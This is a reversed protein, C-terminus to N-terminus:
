WQLRLTFQFNRGPMQRQLVSRYTENFLNFVTIELDLSGLGTHLRKGAGAQNMFYPYLCDRDTTRSNSATTFRESYYNWAYNVSWERWEMGFGANASHVPIYPLQKGSSGDAWNEKRGFNLSRTMAYNGRIQWHFEGSQGSYASNIELGYTKVAEINSPEWNGNFSPLWIIWDKVDSRYFSIGAMLKRPDSDINFVAGMEGSLSNEPRLLPNGGPQFYLDNLTPLRHNSSASATLYFRDGPLVRYEGGLYFSLPSVKSGAIQSVLSSRMSIRGTIDRLWTLSMTGEGRDKNYANGTISEATEVTQRLYRLDAKIEDRATLSYRYSIKNDFNLVRSDSIVRPLRGIGRIVDEMRYSMLNYNIGSFFTFKGKSGYNRYNLASRFFRDDQRNMGTAGGSEGEPPIVAASEDTSLVPLSRESQQIWLNLDLVENESKRYSLQQLLGKHTYGANKNVSVPFYKEGTQLNVSDPTDYNRYRFDNDSHTYFIRTVSHIKSAGMNIRGYEEWTGFSGMGQLLTGSYGNERTIGTSLDLIGGLAGPMGALSSNGHLISVDDIFFVPIESFDVMGLMPSNLELGNWTVRTHSPATGRFSVTALAGRGLSKIFLPSNEAMLEALSRTINRSITASDISTLTLATQERTHPSLVRIEEIKLTDNLGQSMAHFSIGQLFLLSLICAVIYANREKM